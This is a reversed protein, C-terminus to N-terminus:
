KETIFGDSDVNYDWGIEIDAIQEDWKDVAIEWEKLNKEPFRKKFIKVAEKKNKAVINEEWYETWQFRYVNFLKMKDEENEMHRVGKGKYFRKTLFYQTTGKGGLM